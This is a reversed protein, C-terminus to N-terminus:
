GRRQLRIQGPRQLRLGEESSGGWRYPTGLVNVARSLVDSSQKPSMAVAQLAQRQNANNPRASLTAKRYQV